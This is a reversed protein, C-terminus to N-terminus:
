HVHREWDEAANESWTRLIVHRAWIKQTEMLIWCAQTIQLQNALCTKVAMHSFCLDAPKHWPQQTLVVKLSVEIIMQFFSFYWLGTPLTWTQRWHIIEYFRSSISPHFGTLNDSSHIIRSCSQPCRCIIWLVPSCPPIYKNLKYQRSSWLHLRANYSCIWCLCQLKSWCLAQSITPLFVCFFIHM